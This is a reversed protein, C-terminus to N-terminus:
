TLRIREARFELVAADEAEIKSCGTAIIQAYCDPHRVIWCNREASWTANM